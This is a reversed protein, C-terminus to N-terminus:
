MLFGSVVGASAIIAAALLIVFISGLWLGILMHSSSRSARLRRWFIKVLAAAVFVLLWIFAVGIRVGGLTSGVVGFRSVFLVCVADSCSRVACGLTRCVIKASRNFWGVVCAISVGAVLVLFLLFPMVIVWSAISAHMCSQGFSIFELVSADLFNGLCMSFATSLSSVPSSM